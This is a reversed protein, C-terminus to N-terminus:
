FKFHLQLLLHIRPIHCDVTGVTYLTCQVTITNNGPFHSYFFGPIIIHCTFMPYSSCIHIYVCLSDLTGNQLILSRHPSNYTNMPPSTNHSFYLTKMKHFTKPKLFPSCFPKVTKFDKKLSFPNKQIADESNLVRQQNLVCMM